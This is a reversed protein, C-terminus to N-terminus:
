KLCKIKFFISIFFKFTVYYIKILLKRVMNDKVSINRKEENLNTLNDGSEKKKSEINLDNNKNVNQLSFNNESDLKDNLVLNKKEKLGLLKITPLTKKLNEFYENQDVNDFNKFSLFKNNFTLEKLPSEFVRIKGFNNLNRDHYAEIAKQADEILKFEVFAKLLIKQSFIIIKNIKGFPHFLLFLDDYTIPSLSDTTNTFGICVLLIHPNDM